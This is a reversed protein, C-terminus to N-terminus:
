WERHIMPTQCSVVVLDIAEACPMDRASSVMEAEITWANELDSVLKAM